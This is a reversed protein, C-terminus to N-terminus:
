LYVAVVSGEGRRLQGGAPRWGRPRPERRPRPRLPRVVGNIATHTRPSVIGRLRSSESV